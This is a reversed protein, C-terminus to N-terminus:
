ATEQDEIGLVEMRRYLRARTLGLLQAAKSKNHKCQRLTQQIQQREVDELLDKLPLTRPAAIPSLSQAELGTRFRFPLDNIDILDGSCVAAAERIVTQLEDLNGPWNYERFREWVEETLGGIQKEAGRNLEELFSQALLTLDEARSRLPPLAIELPTLLYYFDSRLTEDKITQRLDVTTAAMIRLKHTEGITNEKSAKLIMQQHDRPLLEVHELYLTGPQLIPMSPSETDSGKEGDEELLRNLTQKLERAPLERCDLPVFSRNGTESEFHILRAVHEKGTGPEGCLLVTVESSRALAIQQLVRNMAVSRGIFSNMSFRRRLANRLSALEAHLQRAPTTFFPKSPQEIPTILGLVGDVRGKDNLLPFFNILRPFTKGNRHVIYTPVDVSKGTFVEPPPCLNGTLSNINEHDADSAYDCMRGLLDEASWGTLQECGSNFFAIKRRADLLFVPTIVSNLVTELQATRRSRKAM